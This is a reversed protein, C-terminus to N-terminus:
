RYFEKHYDVVKRHSTSERLNRMIGGTESKYGTKGPYVSRLMELYVLSDASNERGQMECYVVGADEGDANVHHVETDYGSETITPFLIHDLYVPLMNLFGEPGVNTM